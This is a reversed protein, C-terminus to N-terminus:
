RYLQISTTAKSLKISKREKGDFFIPWGRQTRGVVIIEYDSDNKIDKSVEDKKEEEPGPLAGAWVTMVDDSDYAEGILDEDDVSTCRNYFFLPKGALSKPIELLDQMEGVTAGASDEFLDEYVSGTEADLPYNILIM